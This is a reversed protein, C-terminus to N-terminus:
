FKLLQNDFDSQTTSMHISEVDKMLEDFKNKAIKHKNKRINQTVHFYCMLIDADFLREAANSSAAAADHMNFDPDFNLDLKLSLEILGTYLEFFDAETEHSTIM